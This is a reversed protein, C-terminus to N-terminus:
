ISRSDPAVHQVFMGLSVQWSGPCPMGSNLWGENADKESDGPEQSESWCEARSAHTATQSAAGAWLQWLQGCNETQNQNWIRLIVKDSPNVWRFVVVGWPVATWLRGFGDVAWLRRRWSVLLPLERSKLSPQSWRWCVVFLNWIVAWLLFIHAGHAALSFLVQALYSFSISVM